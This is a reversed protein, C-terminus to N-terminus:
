RADGPRSDRASADVVDFTGGAKPLVDRVAEFGEDLAPPELRKAVTFIAVKPVRGPGTRGENRAVAERTTARVHYAVVRAGHARAFDIIPARDTRSPNTNDVAVAHGADLAAAIERLMRRQRNAANPFLDKSVLTHTGSLHARYFTTKGAGPLGILIACEVPVPPDYCPLAAKPSPRHARPRLTQYERVSRQSRRRGGGGADATSTVRNAFSPPNTAM